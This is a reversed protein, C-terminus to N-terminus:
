LQIVIGVDKHQLAAFMDFLVFFVEFMKICFVFGIFNWCRDHSRMELENVIYKESEEKKRSNKKNNERVKM